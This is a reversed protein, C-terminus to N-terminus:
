VSLRFEEIKRGIVEEPKRGDSKALVMSELDEDNLILILKQHVLWQERLTVQSGGSDAGNRCIIM